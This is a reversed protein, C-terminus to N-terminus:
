HLCVLILFYDNRLFSKSITTTNESSQNSFSYINFFWFCTKTFKHQFYVSLTEVSIINTINFMQCKVWCAPQSMRLITYSSIHRHSSSSTQCLVVPFAYFCQINYIFVLRFMNKKFRKIFIWNMMPSSQLKAQTM